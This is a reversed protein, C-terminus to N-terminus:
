IEYITKIGPKIVITRYQRNKKPTSIRFRWYRDTEHIKKGKLLKFDMDKFKKKAEEKTFKTKDFIIAQIM